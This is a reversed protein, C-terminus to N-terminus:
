ITEQLSTVALTPSDTISSSRAASTHISQQVGDDASLVTPWSDVQSLICLFPTWNVKEAKVWVVSRELLHDTKESLGAADVHTEQNHFGRGV